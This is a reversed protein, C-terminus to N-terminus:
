AGPQHRNRGAGAAETWRSLKYEFELQFNECEAATRLWNPVDGAGSSHLEGRVASFTARPGAHVWGALDRGNFLDKPAGTLVLRVRLALVLIM